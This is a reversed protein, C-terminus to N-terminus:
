SIRYLYFFCLLQDLGGPQMRPLPQMRLLGCLPPLSCLHLLYCETEWCRVVAAGSGRVLGYIISPIIKAYYTDLSYSPIIPM